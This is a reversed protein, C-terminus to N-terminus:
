EDFSRILDGLDRLVDGAGVLVVKIQGLQSDDDPNEKSEAELEKFVTVYSGLQGKLMSERNRAERVDIIGKDLCRLTVEAMVKLRVLKNALAYENGNIVYFTVSETSSESLQSYENGERSTHSITVEKIKGM